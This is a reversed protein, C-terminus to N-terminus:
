HAYKLYENSFSRNFPKFPRSEDRKARYLPFPHSGPGSRQRQMSAPFRHPPVFEGDKPSSGALSSPATM